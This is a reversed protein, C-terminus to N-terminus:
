DTARILGAPQHRVGDAAEDMLSGQAKRSTAHALAPGDPTISKLGMRFSRLDIPVQHDLALLLGM